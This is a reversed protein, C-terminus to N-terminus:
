KGAKEVRRCRICCELYKNAGYFCRLAVLTQDIKGCCKLTVRSVRIRFNDRHVKSSAQMHGIRFLRADLKCTFSNCIARGDRAADFETFCRMSDVELISVNLNWYRLLLLSNQTWDSLAEDITPTHRIDSKVRAAQLTLSRSIELADKPGLGVNAQKTHVATRNVWSFQRGIVEDM